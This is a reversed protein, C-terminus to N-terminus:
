VSCDLVVMENRFSLIASLYWGFAASACMVAVNLISMLTEITSGDIVIDLLNYMKEMWRALVRRNIDFGTDQLEFNVEDDEDLSNIIAILAENITDLDGPEIHVGDQQMNAEELLDEDNVDLLNPGRQQQQGFALGHIADLPTFDTIPEHPCYREDDEMTPYKKTNLARRNPYGPKRMVAQNFDEPIAPPTYYPNQATLADKKMKQIKKMHAARQRAREEREEETLEVVVTPDVENSPKEAVSRILFVVVSLVPIVVLLGSFVYMVMDPIVVGFKSVIPLLAFAFNLFYLTCDLINNVIFLYPRSVVALIFMGLYVLPLLYVMPSWIKSAITSALMVIFKYILVHVSWSTKQVRYQAFLFIGTTKMRRVVNQWKEEPTKGFVKVNFVFNRNRKILFYYLAPIGFMVFIVTFLITGGSVSLVDSIFELSPDESMRLDRKERTCVDYCTSNSNTLYDTACPICTTTHNVFLDFTYSPDYDTKFFSGAPCYQSHPTLLSVLITLIPIYLLDLFLMLLRLGWRKSFKKISFIVNTGCKTVKLIGFIFCIGAIVLSVYPVIVRVMDPIEIYIPLVGLAFLAIVVFICTFLFFVVGACKSQKGPLIEIMDSFQQISENIDDIDHVCQAGTIKSMCHDCIDKAIDHLSLYSRKRKCCKVILHILLYLGCIGIAIYHVVTAKMIFINTVFFALTALAVLDFVHFLTFSFSHSFWVFIVDLIFPVGLALLVITARMDFKPMRPILAMINTIFNKIYALVDRIKQPVQLEPLEINIGINQWFNIFSTILSAISANVM